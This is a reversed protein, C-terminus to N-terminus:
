ATLDAFKYEVLANTDLNKTKATGKKKDVSVIEVEVMKVKKVKTKPDTVTTKAKWVEGKAPTPDEVTEEEAPADDGAQRVRLEKVFEKWSVFEGIEDDTFGTETALETLRASATQKAASEKKHDAATALADLDEDPEPEEPVTEVTESTTDDVATSNDVTGATAADGEEHYETVKGWVENTRPNPYEKTAKGMWTRFTFHPGDEKLSAAVAELDAVSEVASLDAGLCKFYNMVNDIHEDESTVKGAITKTECVMEIVLTRRGKISIGAHTDPSVIIGAMKLMPKGANQKGEGVLAFECETLKAIGNEIGAPLSGGTDYVPATDKHKQLSATANKSLKSTLVSKTTVGPM